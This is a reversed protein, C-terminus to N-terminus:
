MPTSVYTGCLIYVYATVIQSLRWTVSHTAYICAPSQAVQYAAAAARELLTIVLVKNDSACVCYMFMCVCVRM